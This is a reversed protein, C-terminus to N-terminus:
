RTAVFVFQSAFLGPWNKLAFKDVSKALSPLGKRFFLLPFHGYANKSIVKLGAKSIMDQASEWDFFRFHTEDMLGGHPSYKFNGKLFELRQKVQLVNPLAIIVVGGPNLFNIFSNLVSEPKYTHELVHSFIMCDFTFKISHPTNNLDAIWVEDLVKGAIAGEEGSYTIGCVIRKPNQNKLAAGMVGTGCGVDLVSNAVPPVKSFVEGNLASYNIM